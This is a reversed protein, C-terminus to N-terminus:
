LVYLINIEATWNFCSLRGFGATKDWTAASSWFKGGVEM